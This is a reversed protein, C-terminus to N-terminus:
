DERYDCEKRKRLVRSPSDSMILPPNKCSRDKPSCIKQSCNVQQSENRISLKPKMQPADAMKARQEALAEKKIADLEWKRSGMQRGIEESTAELYDDFDMGSQIARAALESYGEELDKAKAAKTQDKSMRGYNPESRQARPTAPEKAKHESEIQERLKLSEAKEYDSLTKSRISEHEGNWGRQRGKFNELGEYMEQEDRERREAKMREFDALRDCSGDLAPIERISFHVDTLDNMLNSCNISRTFTPLVDSGINCDNMRKSHNFPGQDTYGLQRDSLKTSHTVNMLDSLDDSCNYKVAMAIPDTRCEDLMWAQPGNYYYQKATKAKKKVPSEMEPDSESQTWDPDPETKDSDTHYDTERKIPSSGPPSILQTNFHLRPKPRHSFLHANTVSPAGPIFGLATAPMMGGTRRIQEQMKKEIDERTAPPGKWEPVAGFKRKMASTKNQDHPDLKLPVGAAELKEITLDEINREAVACAVDALANLDQWNAIEDLNTLWTMVEPDPADTKPDSTSTKRPPEEPSLPNDSGYTSTSSASPSDCVSSEVQSIRKRLLPYDCDLDREKPPSLSTDPTFLGKDPDYQAEKAPPTAAKPAGSSASPSPLELASITSTGSRSSPISASRCQNFAPKPNTNAGRGAKLELFAEFVDQLDENTCRALEINSTELLGEVIARRQAEHPTDSDM